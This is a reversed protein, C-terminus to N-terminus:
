DKIQEIENFLKQATDYDDTHITIDVGESLDLSFLGLISKADIVLHGKVADIDEVYKTTIQYLNKIAKVSNFKFKASIGM